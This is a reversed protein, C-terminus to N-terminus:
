KTFREYMSLISLQMARPPGYITTGIFVALNANGILMPMFIGALHVCRSGSVATPWGPLIHVYIRMDVFTHTNGFHTCKNTWMHPFIHILYISGASAYLRSYIHVRCHACRCKRICPHVEDQTFGSIYHIARTDPSNCRIIYMQASQHIQRHM